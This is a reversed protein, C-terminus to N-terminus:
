DEKKPPQNSPGEKEKPFIFDWWSKDSKDQKLEQKKLYKSSNDM